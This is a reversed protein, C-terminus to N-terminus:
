ETWTIPEALEWTKTTPNWKDKFSAVGYDCCCIVSVAQFEDKMTQLLSSDHNDFLYVGLVVNQEDLFAHPHGEIHEIM